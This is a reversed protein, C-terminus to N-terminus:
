GATSTVSAEYVPHLWNKFAANRGKVIDFYMSQLQATIPGVGGSGIPRGDIKTVPSVQAGTGCLFIEDATYLETRQITRELTSIGLQKQAIEMISGRTIGELISDSVSPSVLKGGNVVFLNEASGESAYGSESLMIAEDFGNSLAEHKALAANVYAGTVKARPPIANDGNRRWSSICCHLGNEIEIYNGMPQAYLLFDDPVGRMSVGIGLGSKYALPRVYVDQHFNSRRVVQLTIDIIEDVSYKLDIALVKASNHIREMHERLRFLYLQHNEDSWYGRIGEFTGTGYNFAHTMISIKADKLPIYQGELFAIADTM